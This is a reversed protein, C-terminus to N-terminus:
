FIYVVVVSILFQSIITSVMSNYLGDIFGKELYLDRLADALIFVNAFLGNRYVGFFTTTELPSKDSFKKKILSNFTETTCYQISDHLIFKSPTSQPSVNARERHVTGKKKKRKDYVLLPPSPLTLTFKDYLTWYVEYPARYRRFIFKLANGLPVAVFDYMVYSMLSRVFKEHSSPKYDLFSYDQFLSYLLCLLISDVFFVLSVVMRSLAWFNQVFGQITLVFLNYCDLSSRWLIQFPGRLKYYTKIHTTFSIQQYFLLLMAAYQNYLGKLLSFIAYKLISSLIDEFKYSLYFFEFYLQILNHFMFLFMGAWMNNPIENWCLYFILNLASTTEYDIVSDIYPTKVITIIFRWLQQSFSIRKTPVRRGRLRHTSRVPLVIKRDAVVSVTDLHHKINKTEFNKLQTFTLSSSSFPVLHVVLVLFPLLLSPSSSLFACPFPWRLIM